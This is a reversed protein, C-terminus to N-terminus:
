SVTVFMNEKDQTLGLISSGAEPCKVATFIEYGEYNNLGLFMDHLFKASIKIIPMGLHRYNQNGGMSRVGGRRIIRTIVVTKADIPAPPTGPPLKISSKIM